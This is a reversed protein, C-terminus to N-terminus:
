VKEAAIKRGAQYCADFINLNMEKFPGPSMTDVAARLDDASLPGVDFAAYFAVMALNTSKPSGLAMATKGAEMAWPEIAKKELYGAV